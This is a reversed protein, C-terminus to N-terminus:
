VKATQSTQRQNLLRHLQMIQWANCALLPLLMFWLSAMNNERLAPFLEIVTIVFMFFATSAFAKFNTALSKWWAVLLSVILIFLPFWVYTWLGEGAQAFFLHRLYIVDGFAFLLLVWLVTQYLRSSKFTSLLLYNLVLFAFFGLQAVVSFMLGAWLKGGISILWEIAWDAGYDIGSILEQVFGVVVATVGGILLTTWFLYVWKKITM